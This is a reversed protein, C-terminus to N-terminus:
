LQTPTCSRLWMGTFYLKFYVSSKSNVTMSLFSVHVSHHIHEQNSLM